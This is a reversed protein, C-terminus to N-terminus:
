VDPCRLVRGFNGSVGTRVERDQSHRRATLYDTSQEDVSRCGRQSGPCSGARRGGDNEVLIRRTCSGDDRGKIPRPSGNRREARCRQQRTSRCPSYVSPEGCAVQENAFERAPRRGYYPSTSVDEHIVNVAM